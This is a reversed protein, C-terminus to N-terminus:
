KWNCLVPKVKEWRYGINFPIKEIMKEVNQLFWTKNNKGGGNWIILDKFRQLHKICNGNTGSYPSILEQRIECKDLLLFTKSILIDFDSQNFWEDGIVGNLINHPINLGINNILHGLLESADM